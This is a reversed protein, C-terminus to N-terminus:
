GFNAIETNIKTHHKNERHLTSTQVDFSALIRM